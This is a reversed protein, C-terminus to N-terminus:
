SIINIGLRKKQYTKIEIENKYVGIMGGSNQQVTKDIIKFESNHTLNVKKEIVIIATETNVDEFPYFRYPFDIIGNIITNNFLYERLNKFSVNTFYSNPTIFGLSGNQKLLENISEM